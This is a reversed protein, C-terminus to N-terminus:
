WCEKEPVIINYDEDHTLVEELINKDFMINWSDVSVVM